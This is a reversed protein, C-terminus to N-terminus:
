AGSVADRAEASPLVSPQLQASTCVEKEAHLAPRPSARDLNGGIMPSPSQLANGTGVVGAWREPASEPGLGAEPKLL